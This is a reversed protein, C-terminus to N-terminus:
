YEYLVQRLGEQAREHSPFFFFDVFFVRVFWVGCFSVCGFYFYFSIIM